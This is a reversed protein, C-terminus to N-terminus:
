GVHSVRFLRALDKQMRSPDAHEPYSMMLNGLPDVLYIRNISPGPAGVALTFDRVLSYIASDPGTVVQLKSYRSLVDEAVQKEDESTVILLRQVRDQHKGQAIHVQKMKYLSDKCPKLCSASGFYVLTWKRHFNSFRGSSGDRLTVVTDNVLRAPTVLEGYNVSAAPRWGSKYLGYALVVPALSIALILLLTKRNDNIDTGTTSANENM